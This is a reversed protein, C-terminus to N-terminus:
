KLKTQRDPRGSPARYRLFWGFIGDTGGEPSLELRGPITQDVADLERRRYYFLVEASESLYQEALGLEGVRLFVQSTQCAM